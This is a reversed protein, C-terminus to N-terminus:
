RVELAMFTVDDHALSGGTHERVANLVATKVATLDAGATRELVARLREEGFLDGSASMAEIVGDTYVFIRDGRSLSTQEQDFHTTEDVGLPLNGVTERAPLNATEWANQKKRWLLAPHHGAYAYYFNSDGLYFAIVAATTMGKYGHSGAARNLDALVDYGEISNMREELAAYIMKSIDSVTEGHGQVDALAIRTLMDSGCVSFYYIDGGKGGDAANSFLSATVGSTCVDLDANRIGGWIEACKIEHM